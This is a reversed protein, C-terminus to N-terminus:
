TLPLGTTANFLAATALGLELANAFRTHAVAKLPARLHDFSSLDGVCRLRVAATVERECAERDVPHHLEAALESLAYDPIAPPLARLRQTRELDDM